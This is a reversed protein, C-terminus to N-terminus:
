LSTPVAAFQLMRAAADAFIDPRPLLSVIVFAEHPFDFFYGPHVLVRERELLDLILEEESRTSPVRVVAYWGGECALLTAAEFRAVIGRLATLNMRVRQLIGDRIAAGRHLLEAAAVQVPTSVSLYSDAVLELARLADDRLRAEGGVVIWGLKLQPLGVTKSLGGLGFVLPGNAVAIDTM